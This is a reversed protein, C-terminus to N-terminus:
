VGLRPLFFLFINERAKPQNSQLRQTGGSLIQQIVEIVRSLLYDHLRHALGQYQVPVDLIQVSIWTGCRWVFDKKLAANASIM